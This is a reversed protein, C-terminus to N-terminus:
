KRPGGFRYDLMFRILRGSTRARSRFTASWRSEGHQRRDFRVPIETIRMGAERAKLLVYLDFAFDAPPNQFSGLLNRPFVKPQANIEHFWRRLIGIAIGEFCRSFLWPGPERQMRRGKVLCPNPDRTIQEWARFADEPDCQGDAHTWGVVASETALLGQWIGHGYGRNIAVAVIKLFDRAPGAALSALVASTDDTSGNNVLVVQFDSGSLNRRRACDVVRNFLASLSPAENFCPIVLEFAPM